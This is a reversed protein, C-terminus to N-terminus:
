QLNYTHIHTPNHPTTHTQKDALSILWLLTHNNVDKTHDENSLRFVFMDKM